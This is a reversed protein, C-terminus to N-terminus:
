IKKVVKKPRVRIQQLTQINELEEEKTTLKLESGVKKEYGKIDFFLPIKMLINNKAIRLLDEDLNTNELIFSLVKNDEAQKKLDEFDRFRIVETIFDLVMIYEDYRIRPKYRLHWKFETSIFGNEFNPVVDGTPKKYDFSLRARIYNKSNCTKLITGELSNDGLM